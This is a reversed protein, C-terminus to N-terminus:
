PHLRWHFWKTFSLIKKEMVPFDETCLTKYKRNEGRSMILQTKKNQRILKLVPFLSLSIHFHSSITAIVYLVLKFIKHVKWFM